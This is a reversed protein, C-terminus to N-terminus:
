APVKIGSEISNKRRVKSAIIFGVLGIGMVVFPAPGPVNSGPGKADLGFWRKGCSKGNSKTCSLKSGGWIKLRNQTVKLYPKNAFRLTGSYTKNGKIIDVIWNGRGNKSLSGGNVNVRVNGNKSLLSGSIGSLGSSDDWTGSISGSFDHNKNLFSM